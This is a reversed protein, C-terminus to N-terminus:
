RQAEIADAADTVYKALQRAGDVTLEVGPSQIGVYVAKTGDDWENESAWVEVSHFGGHLPVAPCSLLDRSRFLRGDDERSEWGDPVPVADGGHTDNM